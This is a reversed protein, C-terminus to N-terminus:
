RDAQHIYQYGTNTQLVIKEPVYKAAKLQKRRREKGEVDYYKGAKRAPRHKGKQKKGGQARAQQALTPAAKEEKAPVALNTQAISICTMFNSAFSSASHVCGNHCVKYAKSASTAYDLRGGNQRWTYLWYLVAVIVFFGIILAYSVIYDESYPLYYGMIFFGGLVLAILWRLMISHWVLPVKALLASFCNAQCGAAQHDDASAASQGHYAVALNRFFHLALGEEGAVPGFNALMQYVLSSQFKANDEEIIAVATSDRSLYGEIARNLKAQFTAIENACLSPLYHMFYLAECFEFVLFEFALQLVLGTIFSHHWAKSKEEQGRWIAFVIFVSHLLMLLLIVIRQYSLSTLKIQENDQIYIPHDQKFQSEFITIAIATTAPDGEHKQLMEFLFAHMLELRKSSQDDLSLFVNLVDLDNNLQGSSYIKSYDLRMTKRKDSDASYFSKFQFQSVNNNPLGKELLSIDTLMAQDVGSTNTGKPYVTAILQKLADGSEMSDVRRGKTAQGDLNAPLDVPSALILFCYDVFPLFVAMVIATIVAAIFAEEYRMMPQSYYCRGQENSWQCYSQDLDFPLKKSLCSSKTLKDECSNDDRPRQSDYILTIIFMFAALITAIYLFYMTGTLEIKGKIGNATITPLPHFFPRLYRHKSAIKSFFSADQKFSVPVVTDLYNTLAERTDKAAAVTSNAKNTRCSALLKYMGYLGFFAYLLCYLIAVVYGEEM